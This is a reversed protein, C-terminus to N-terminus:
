LEIVPPINLAEIADALTVDYDAEGYTQRDEGWFWDGFADASPYLDYGVEDWTLLVKGSDTLYVTMDDRQAVVRGTFRLRLPHEDQDRQRVYHLTMGDNADRRELETEVAERLLRSFKLEAAKAREGLENPLYVTIDM